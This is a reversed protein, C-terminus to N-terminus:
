LRKQMKWLVVHWSGNLSRLGKNRPLLWHERAYSAPSRPMFWSMLYMQVLM